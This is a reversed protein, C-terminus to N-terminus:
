LLSATSQETPYFKVAKKTLNRSEENDFIKDNKNM